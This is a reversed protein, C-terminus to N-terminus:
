PNASKKDILEIIKHIEEDNFGEDVDNNYIFDCMSKCPEIYLDHMPRVTEFYQKLVSALDRGRETIDRTIRRALRRDAKADVFFKLDLLPLLQKMQFVMIGEIIIIKKPTFETVKNTRTHTAFDYTPLYVSKGQKIEKFQKGILESDYAEPADYNVKAREEMPIDSHDKYYCDLSVISLEEKYIQKLYSSLYTKGAGSGGSIGIIISM